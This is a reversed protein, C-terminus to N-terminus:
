AGPAGVRGAAERVMARYEPPEVVEAEPAYLLVHRLLWAPDHVPLELTVSGDPAPEAGPRRETIWRAIVPSYHVTAHRPEADPDDVYFVSGAEADLADAPDFDHRREFGGELPRADLIRDLRFVRGGESDVCWALAYWRGEAHALGYPHIERPEPGPADPKLYHIRAPRRQRVCGLLTERHGAPDPALDPARLREAATELDVGGLHGALRTALELAREGPEGEMGGSGLRRGRLGVALCLAEALSLRVPRRFAGTTWVKIRRADLQIQIDDGPGARQGYSRKLVETVDDLITKREVGLEHALEGLEVGPDDAEGWARPLIYLLRALRHAATTPDAV